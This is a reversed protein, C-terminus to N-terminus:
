QALSSHAHTPLAQLLSPEAERTPLTERSVLKVPHM